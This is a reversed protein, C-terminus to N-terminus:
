DTVEYRNKKGMIYMEANNVIKDLKHQLKDIKDRLDMTTNKTFREIALEVLENWPKLEDGFRAVMYRNLDRNDKRSVTYKDDIGVAELHDLAMQKTKFTMDRGEANKLHNYTGKEYAYYREGRIGIIFPDPSENDWWIELEDFYDEKISLAVDNLAELPLPIASFEELTTKTPCLTECVRLMHENMFPYPVPSLSGKALELQKTLGLEEMKQRWEDLKETEFTVDSLEKNLYSEVM